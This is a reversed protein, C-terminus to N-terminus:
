SEIYPKIIQNIITCCKDNAIINNKIDKISTMIQKEKIDYLLEEAVISFVAKTEEIPKFDITISKNENYILLKECEKKATEFKTKNKETLIRIYNYNYYKIKQKEFYNFYNKLFKIKDKDNQELRRETKVKKKIEELTSGLVNEIIYSIYIYASINEYLSSEEFKLMFKDFIELPEKRLKEITKDVSLGSNLSELIEDEIMSNNPDAACQAYLM